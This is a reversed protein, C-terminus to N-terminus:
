PTFLEYPTFMEFVYRGILYSARSPVWGSLERYDRAYLVIDGDGINAEADSARSSVDVAENPDFSKEQGLDQGLDQDAAAFRRSAAREV